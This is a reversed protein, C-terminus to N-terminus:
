ALGRLAKIAPHDVSQIFRDKFSLKLIESFSLEPWTPESLEGAAEFVDYMGAGMNAAVRVWKTEALRAAALASENWSNSRGDPGPLKAPWLFTDGQRSISTFICVPYVEGALEPWLEPRVLFVERNVKDEFVGTELRWEDGPHVRVFEHRNPKRCPVTTLVRKVGVTSAFDQSLRLSAPDFPDPPAEPLVGRRPEPDKAPIAPGQSNGGIEHVIPTDSM